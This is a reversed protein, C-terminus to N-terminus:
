ALRRRYASVFFMGILGTSLLLMTAPEPTTTLQVQGYNGTPTLVIWGSFDMGYFNNAAALNAADLWKQVGATTLDPQGNAPLFTDWIAAHIGAWEAPDTASFQSALWAAKKLDLTTVSYGMYTGATSATGADTLSGASVGWSSGITVDHTYDICFMSFNDMVTTGGQTLKGYYAGDYVGNANHGNVGKLTLTYPDSAWAPSATLGLVALLFLSRALKM